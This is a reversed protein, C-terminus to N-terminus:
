RGRGRGSGVVTRKVREMQLRHMGGVTELVGVVTWVVGGHVIKDHLIKPSAVGNTENAWVQAEAQEVQEKGERMAPQEFTRQGTWIVDIEIADAEVGAPWYAHVDGTEHLLAANGAAM